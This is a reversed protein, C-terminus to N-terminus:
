SKLKLEKISQNIYQLERVILMGIAMDVICSAKRSEMNQDNESKGWFIGARENDKKTWIYDALDIAYILDDKITTPPTCEATGIVGGTVANKAGTAGPSPDIKGTAGIVQQKRSKNWPWM